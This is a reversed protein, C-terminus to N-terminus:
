AEPADNVVRSRRVLVARAPGAIRGPLVSLVTATTTPRLVVMAVLYAVGVVLGAVFVQVVLPLGGSVQLVGWGAAAAIVATPMVSLFPAIVQWRTAGIVPAVPISRLLAEVTAIAAWGTVVALLGFQVLYLSMMLAVSYVVAIFAFWRGPHGTGVLLAQDVAWGVGAIAMVALAPVVMASESKDPGFLLEVVQPAAVALFIMLPAIVAYAVSSARLYFGRLRDVSGRIKSFAAMSVPLLASISLDQATQVLRQAISLFGMERVGLGAVVIATEAWVRLAYVLGSGVVHTGFAVMVKFRAFSFGPRPRWRAVIWVSVVVIVQGCLVQLVLAWAGGGTFAVTIAVIQAIIAANAELLALKRFEMARRLLAMPVSGVAVALVSLGMVQLLPAAEPVDLAGSIFPAAVAITGALAVGSVLSFWFATALTREDVEEAQVLYASFGADALVYILPLLTTATAAVGFDEPALIRTLIIITVFGGLRTVWRQATMWLVSISTHRALGTDDSM